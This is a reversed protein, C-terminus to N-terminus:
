RRAAKASSAGTIAALRSAAVAFASAGHVAFGDLRRQEREQGLVGGAEGRQADGRPPQFRRLIDPRAVARSQELDVLALGDGPGARLRELAQHVHLDDEVDVGAVLAERGRREQVRQEVREVGREAGAVGGLDLGEAAQGLADGDVAADVGVFAQEAFVGVGDHWRSGPERVKKGSVGM